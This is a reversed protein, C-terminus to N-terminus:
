KRDLHPTDSYHSSTVFMKLGGGSLVFYFHFNQCSDHELPATPFNTQFMLSLELICRQYIIPCTFAFKVKLVEGEQVIMPIQEKSLPTALGAPAGHWGIEGPVLPSVSSCLGSIQGLVLEKGGITCPRNIGESYDPVGSCRM